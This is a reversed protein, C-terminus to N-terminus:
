KGKTLIYTLVLIEVDHRKPSQKNSRISIDVVKMFREANELNAVFAGLEHYGSKATIRIPIEQYVQAANQAKEEKKAVPMISDIKVGSSKAMASLNELLTPIEQEAPLMREYSDVKEKYSLIAHKFKPVNLIDRKANKLDAGQRSMEIVVHVVRTVQPTLIFNFYVIVLLVAMLVLFIMIQKQNKKFDIKLLSQLDPIQM